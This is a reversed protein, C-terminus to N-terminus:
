SGSSRRLSEMPTKTSTSMLYDLAPEKGGVTHVQLRNDQNPKPNVKDSSRQIMPPTTIGRNKKRTQSGPQAM